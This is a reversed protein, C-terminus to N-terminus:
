IYVFITTEIGRPLWFFFVSFPSDLVNFVHLHGSLSILCFLVNTGITEPQFYSWDLIFLALLFFFVSSFRLIHGDHIRYRALPM